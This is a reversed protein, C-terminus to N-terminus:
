ALSCPHSKFWQLLDNFQEKRAIPHTLMNIHDYDIRHGHRLGYIRM